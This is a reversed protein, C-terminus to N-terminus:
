ASTVILRRHGKRFEFIGTLHGVTRHILPWRILNLRWPPLVARYTKTKM